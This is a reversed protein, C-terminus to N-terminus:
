KTNLNANLYQMIGMYVAWAVKEQYVESQLLKCEEENSLFGSEVIVIPCNTNKLLYYNDNAKEKRHNNNDLTYVLRDQLFGALEKGKKSDSYYFTQAGKISGDSYSNQHISIVLDPETQEILSVRNRMDATKKVADTESYLGYDGDRTLVVRIGELELFIKLKETIKLNIDKEYCGTIGVKGPDKGGHGADLVVCIDMDRFDADTNQGWVYEAQLSAAEWAWIIMAVILAASMIIRMIRDNKQM